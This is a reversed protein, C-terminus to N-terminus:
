YNQQRQQVIGPLGLVANVENRLIHKTALQWVGNLLPLMAFLLGGAYATIGVALYGEGPALGLLFLFSSTENSNQTPQVLYLTVQIGSLHDCLYVLILIFDKLIYVSM